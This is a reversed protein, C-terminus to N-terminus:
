YQSYQSISTSEFKRGEKWTMLVSSCKAGRMSSLKAKAKIHFAVFRFFFDLLNACHKFIMCYTENVLNRAKFDLINKLIFHLLSATESLGYLWIRNIFSLKLFVRFFLVSFAEM